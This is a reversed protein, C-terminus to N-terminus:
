LFINSNSKPLSSIKKYFGVLKNKNGGMINMKRSTALLVYPINQNFKFLTTHETKYLCLPASYYSSDLSKYFSYSKLSNIRSAISSYVSILNYCPQSFRYGHQALKNLFWPNIFNSVGLKIKKRLNRRKVVKKIKIFTKRRRRFRRRRVRLKILRYKALVRSKGLFLSEKSGLGM